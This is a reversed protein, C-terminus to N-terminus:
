AQCVQQSLARRSLTPQEAILQRLFAADDDTITRGRYTLLANMRM